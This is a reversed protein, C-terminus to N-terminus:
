CTMMRSEAPFRWAPDDVDHLPAAEFDELLPLSAPRDLLALAARLVRLQMESDGPPGFPRGLEFPVWLSRPPRMSVIHERVLAVIVTALGERELYHALGSM